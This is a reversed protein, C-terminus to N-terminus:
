LGQGHAGPPIGRGTVAISLVVTEEEAGASLTLRGGEPMAQYANTVLNGPVMGIRQADVSAVRHEWQPTNTRAM